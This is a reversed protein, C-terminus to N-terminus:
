YDIMMMMMTDILIIILMCWAAVRLAGNNSGGGGHQWRMELHVAAVALIASEGLHWRRRWAPLRWM